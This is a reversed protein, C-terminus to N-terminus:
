SGLRLGTSPADPNAALPGRELLSDSDCGVRRLSPPFLMLGFTSLKIKYSLNM